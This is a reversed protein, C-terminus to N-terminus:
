KRKRLEFVFQWSMLQVLPMRTFLTDLWNFLPLVFKSLVPIRNAFVSLPSLIHFYRVEGVDFFRSGFNVDKLSLIHAKEWDTRMTPTLTRYLKIVPNYDLAEVALIVGGPKLIRRLEPFAFSLDLHHLMGSCLIVDFSNEPLGTNECDAQLFSMRDSLGLRQAEEFANQVSVDSIDIGITYKAGLNASRVALAGNGCAYDLVVKGPLNSKMWQTIYNQSIETTSYYKKNGHLLEYTDKPLSATLKKDRDRNHFELEKYKRDGLVQHLDKGQYSSKLKDVANQLAAVSDQSALNELMETELKSYKFASNGVSDFVFDPKLGHEVRRNSMVSNTTCLLLMSVLAVAMLKVELAVQSTNSVQTVPELAWLRKLESFITVKISQVSQIKLNLQLRTPMKQARFKMRSKILLAM